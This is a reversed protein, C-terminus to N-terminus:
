TVVGERSTEVLSAEARRSACRAAQTFMTGPTLEIYAIASPLSPSFSSFPHALSSTEKWGNSKRWTEEHRTHHLLLSLPLTPPSNLIFHVLYVSCLILFLPNALWLDEDEREDRKNEDRWV